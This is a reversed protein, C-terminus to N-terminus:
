GGIKPGTLLSILLFLIHFYVILGLGTLALGLLTDAVKKNGSQLSYIILLILNFPGCLYKVWVGSYKWAAEGFDLKIYTFYAWQPMTHFVVFVFWPVLTTVAMVQILRNSILSTM